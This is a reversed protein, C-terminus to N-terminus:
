GGGDEGLAVGADSDLVADVREADLVKEPGERWRESDEVIRAEELRQRGPISYRAHGFRHLRGQAPVDLEEGPELSVSSGEGGAPRRRHGLEDAARRM